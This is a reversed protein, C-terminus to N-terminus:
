LTHNKSSSNSAHCILELCGNCQKRAQRFGLGALGWTVVERFGLGQVQAEMYKEQAFFNYGGCTNCFGLDYIRLRLRRVMAYKSLAEMYKEQAFLDNGERRRREAAELREEFLM